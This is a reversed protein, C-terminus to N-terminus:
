PSPCTHTERTGEAKLNRVYEVKVLDSFSVYKGTPSSGVFTEEIPHWIIIYTKEQYHVEDFQRLGIGNKDQQNIPIAGQSLKQQFKGINMGMNHVGKTHEGKCINSM